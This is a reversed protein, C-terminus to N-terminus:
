EQRRDRCLTDDEVTEGTLEYNIKAVVDSYDEDVLITRGNLIIRSGGSNHNPEVLEISWPDIAFVIPTGQNFEILKM